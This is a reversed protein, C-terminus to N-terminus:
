GLQVHGRHCDHDLRAPFLSPVLFRGVRVFGRVLEPGPPVIEIRSQAARPREHARVRIDHQHLSTNGAAPCSMLVITRVAPHICCKACLIPNGPMRAARGSPTRGWRRGDRCRAVGRRAAGGRGTRPGASGGMGTRCRGAPLSAIEGPPTRPPPLGAGVIDPSRPRPPHGAGTALRARLARRPM